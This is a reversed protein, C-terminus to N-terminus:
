NRRHVTILGTGDSKSVYQAFPGAYPEFRFPTIASNSAKGFLLNRDLFVAAHIPESGWPTVKGGKRVSPSNYRAGWVVVIDGFRIEEGPQLLRYDRRLQRHFTAPVTFRPKARSSHFGLAANFCNPWNRGRKTSPDPNRGINQQVYAPLLDQLPIDARGQRLRSRIAKEIKKASRGLALTRAMAKLDDGPRVELTVGTHFTCGKNEVWVKYWPRQPDPHVKSRRPGFTTKSSHEAIEGRRLRLPSPATTYTDHLVREMTRVADKTEPHYDRIQPATPRDQYVGFPRKSLEGGLTSLGNELIATEARVGGGGLCGHPDSEGDGRLRLAYWRKNSSERPLRGLSVPDIPTASKTARTDLRYQKSGGAGLQVRLNRDREIVVSNCGYGATVRLCTRKDEKLASVTLCEAAAASLRAAVGVPVTLSLNRARPEGHVRLDKVCLRATNASRGKQLLV